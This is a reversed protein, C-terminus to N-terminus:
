NQVDLLSQFEHLPMPRYYYFGQIIHCGLEKLLEVYAVDEVGEAVVEVKAVNAIEMISRLVQERTNDLPKDFFIRDLKICDIAGNLLFVFSSNGAGFDDLACRIGRKKCEEFITYIRRDKQFKIDELFEFEIYSTPVGTEEVVQFYDKIFERDLVTVNSINFSLPVRAQQKRLGEQIYECSKKFLMLDVSYIEKYENLSSLYTLLPMGDAYKWRLLVEGAVIKNTCPNVKPQVYIEFEDNQRAITLRKALEQKQMYQRYLEDDYIEYSYTRNKLQECNKRVISAKIILEEYSTDKMVYFPVIGFSVFLNKHVHLIGNEFLVDVLEYLFSQLIDEEENGSTRDYQIFFHFTDNFYQEIYGRGDLFTKMVDQLKHLVEDGYASGYKAIYYLFFKIDMEIFAYAVKSQTRIEQYKTKLSDYM